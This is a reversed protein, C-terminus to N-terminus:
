ILVQCLFKEQTIQSFNKIFYSNGEMIRELYQKFEYYCKSKYAAETQQSPQNQTNESKTKNKM